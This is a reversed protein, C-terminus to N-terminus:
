PCPDREIPSRGLPMLSGEHFPHWRSKKQVPGAHLFSFCQPQSEPNLFSAPSVRPYPSKTVARVELEGQEQPHHLGVMVERKKGQGKYEKARLVRPFAPRRCPMLILNTNGLMLTAVQQDALDSPHHTYPSHHSCDRKHM